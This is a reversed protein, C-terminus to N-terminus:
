CAKKEKRPQYSLRHIHKRVYLVGKEDKDSSWQFSNKMYFWFREHEYKRNYYGLERCEFQEDVFFGEMDMIM